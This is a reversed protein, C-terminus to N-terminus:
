DSIYKEFNIDVSPKKVGRRRDLEERMALLDAYDSPSPNAMSVVREREREWMKVLVPTKVTRYYDSSMRLWYSGSM